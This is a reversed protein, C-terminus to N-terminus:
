GSAAQIYGNDRPTLSTKVIEDLESLDFPKKLTKDTNASFKELGNRASMLIIYATPHLERATKVLSDCVKGDLMLDTIIVSPTVRELIQTAADETGVSLVVQNTEKTLYEELFERVDGDDEILLIM